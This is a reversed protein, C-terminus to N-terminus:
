APAIAYAAAVESIETPGILPGEPLVFIQLSHFRENPLSLAASIMAEVVGQAIERATDPGRSAIESLIARAQLDIM